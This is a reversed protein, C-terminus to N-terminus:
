IFPAAGAGKRLIELAREQERVKRSLEETTKQLRDECQQELTRKDEAKARTCAGLQGQLEAAEREAEANAETLRREYGTTTESARQECTGLSTRFQERAEAASSLERGQESYLRRQEELDSSLREVETALQARAADTGKFQELQAHLRQLEQNKTEINSRLGSVLGEAREVRQTYDALTGQTKRLYTSLAGNREELSEIALASQKRDGEYHQILAASNGAVDNLLRGYKSDSVVQGGVVLAAIAGVAAVAAYRLGRSLHLGRIKKNKDKIGERQEENVRRLNDVQEELSPVREAQPRYSEL